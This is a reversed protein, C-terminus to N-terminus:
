HSFGCAKVNVEVFVFRIQMVFPGELYDLSFDVLKGSVVFM